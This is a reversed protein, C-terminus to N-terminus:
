KRQHMMMDGVMRYKQAAAFSDDSIKDLYYAAMKIDRKKFYRGALSLNAFASYPKNMRSSKKWYQIAEDKLGKSNLIIAHTNFYATMDDTAQVPFFEVVFFAIVEASYVVINILQRNKIHSILDNLGLVTFPILIALLPLRVRVEHFLTYLQAM